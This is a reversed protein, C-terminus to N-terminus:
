VHSSDSSYLPVWLRASCVANSRHNIEYKDILDFYDIPSCKFGGTEIMEKILSSVAFRNTKSPILHVHAHPVSQGWKGYEYIM